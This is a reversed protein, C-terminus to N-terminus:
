LVKVEWADSNMLIEGAKAITSKRAPTSSWPVFTSVGSYGPAAEM